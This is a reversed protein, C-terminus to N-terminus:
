ESDEAAIARTQLEKRKRDSCTRYLRQLKERRRTRADRKEKHQQDDAITSAQEERAQQRSSENKEKSILSQPRGWNHEISAHEISAYHDQSKSSDV